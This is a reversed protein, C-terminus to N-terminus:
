YQLLLSALIAATIPVNYNDDGFPLLEVLACIVSIISVRTLLEIPLLASQIYGTTTFLQVVGFSTLASAVVFAVTGAISKEKSFWWKNNRGFKRGVLDAMGDGAAMTSIAVAGIPSNRWFLLTFIEFLCVYIFPGELAESKDGSRSVSNALKEDLGIGALYLRIINSMIVVGAFFRSGDAASFLPYFVMFLPASLVHSLKRSVKSGYLDKEYGLSILKVLAYGLFATLITMGIDQGILGSTYAGYTQSSTDLPGNLIGFKALASVSVLGTAFSGIAITKKDLQRLINEELTSNNEIVDIESEIQIADEKSTHLLNLTNVTDHTSPTLTVTKPVPRGLHSIRGNLADASAVFLLLLILIKDTRKSISELAM